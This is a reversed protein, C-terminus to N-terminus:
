PLLLPVPEHPENMEVVNGYSHIQGEHVTEKALAAPPQTCAGITSSQDHEKVRASSRSDVPVSALPLHVM